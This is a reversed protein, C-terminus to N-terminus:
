TLGHPDARGWFGSGPGWEADKKRRGVHDVLKVAKGRMFAPCSGPSQPKKEDYRQPPMESATRAMPEVM